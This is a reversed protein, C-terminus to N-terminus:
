KQYYSKAISRINLFLQNNKLSQLHLSLHYLPGLKQLLFAHLPMGSLQLPFVSFAAFSRNTERVGHGIPNGLPLSEADVSTSGCLRPKSSFFCLRYQPWFLKKVQSIHM